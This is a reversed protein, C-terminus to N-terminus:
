LICFGFFIVLYGRFAAQAKIAAQELRISEDENETNLVTTSRAVESTSNTLNVSSTKELETHEESPHTVLPVSSSIVMSDNVFDNSTAKATISTKNGLTTDKLLSSIFILNIKWWDSLLIILSPHLCIKRAQYLNSTSSRKGLLITQILKGQSKRMTSLHHNSSTYGEFKHM